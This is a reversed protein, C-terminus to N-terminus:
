LIGFAILAFLAYLLAVVLVKGWNLPSHQVVAHAREDWSTAGRKSLKIWAVIMAILSIIPFGIGMGLFWVSLSRSLANIFDLKYGSETRIKISLLAKGPTTGWTCLLVAEIFVWVFPVFLSFLLLPMLPLNLIAVLLALLLYDFMRAFFRVWPRAKANTQSDAQPIDLEKERRIPEPEDINGEEGM